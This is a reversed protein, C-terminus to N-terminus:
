YIFPLVMESGAKRWNLQKETQNNNIEVRDVIWDRSSHHFIEERHLCVMDLRCGCRPSVTGRQLAYKM